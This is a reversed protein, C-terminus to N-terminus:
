MFKDIEQPGLNLMMDRLWALFTPSQKLMKTVLEKMEADKPLWDFKPPRHDLMMVHNDEKLDFVVKVCPYTPNIRHNRVYRTVVCRVM